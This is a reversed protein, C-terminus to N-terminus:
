PRLSNGGEPVAPLAEKSSSGLGVNAFIDTASSPSTRGQAASAPAELDMAEAPPPEDSSEPGERREKQGTMDIAGSNASRDQREAREREARPQADSQVLGGQAAGSVRDQHQPEEAVTQQGVQQTKGKAGGGKGSPVSVDHADRVQKKQIGSPSDDAGPKARVAGAMPETDPQKQPASTKGKAGRDRSRQAGAPADANQNPTTNMNPVFARVRHSRTKSAM